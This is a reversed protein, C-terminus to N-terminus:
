QSVLTGSLNFLFLPVSVKKNEKKISLRDCASAEIVLVEPSAQLIPDQQALLHKVMKKFWWTVIMVYATGEVTKRQQEACYSNCKYPQESVRRLAAHRSVARLRPINAM